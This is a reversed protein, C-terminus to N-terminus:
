NAPAAEKVNGGTQILALFVLGLIEIGALIGFFTEFGASLYIYSSSLNLGSSTLNYLGNHITFIRSLGGKGVVDEFLYLEYSFLFAKGIGVIGLNLYGCAFPEYVFMVLIYSLAFCGAAIFFPTKKSKFLPQMFPAVLMFAAEVGVGISRMLSYDADALGLANLRIPLISTATVGAGNILTMAILLMVINRKKLGQAKIEGTEEEKEDVNPKTLFSVFFSIGFFAAAFFYSHEFPLNGLLFYGMFLSVIYGLTGFIRISGYRIGSGEIALASHSELFAFPASNFFSLLATLIALSTFDHCFAYGFTLGTEIIACIRFLWLTSKGSRAFRSLVLCGLFLFFPILGLLLSQQHATLGNNIFYLSYYSSLIADGMYFLLYLPCLTFLLRKKSVPLIMATKMILLYGIQNIEKSEDNKGNRLGLDTYTFPPLSRQFPVISNTYNPILLYWYSLHRISKSFLSCM